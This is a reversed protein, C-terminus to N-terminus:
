DSATLIKALPLSFGPLLDGGDLTDNATMVRPPLNPAYVTLSLEDPDIIWVQSTGADLYQQIKKMVVSARDDPSLVEVALDPYSPFFKKTRGVTRVRERKVFALDPARVTDPNRALIFGTEAGVTDGLNHEAVFLQVHANILSSFRGHDFGAPSMTTLKGHILEHRMNDPSLAYLDDATMVSPKIQQDLLSM